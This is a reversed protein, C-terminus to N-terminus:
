DDEAAFEEDSEEAARAQELRERQVQRQRLFATICSLVLSLGYRALFVSGISTVLAVCGYIWTEEPTPDYLDSTVLAFVGVLKIFNNLAPGSTDEFPGGIM